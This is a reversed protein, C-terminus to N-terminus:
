SIKPLNVIEIESDDVSPASEAQFTNGKKLSQGVRGPREDAPYAANKRRSGQKDLKAVKFWGRQSGLTKSQTKRNRVTGPKEQDQWPTAKQTAIAPKIDIQDLALDEEFDPDQQELAELEPDHSGEAEISAEILKGQSLDAKAFSKDLLNVPALNAEVLNEDIQESEKSSRSTKFDGDDSQQILERDVPKIIRNSSVEDIKNHSCGSILALPIISARMLLRLKQDSLSPKKYM